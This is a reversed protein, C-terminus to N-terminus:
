AARAARPEVVTANLFTRKGSRMRKSAKPNAYADLLASNMDYVRPDLGSAEQAQEFGKTTGNAALAVAEIFSNPISLNTPEDLSQKCGEVDQAHFNRCKSPRVSYASCQGDELLPCAQNVELHQAHSLNKVEAVNLEAQKLVRAKQASTFQTEIFQQIALVEPARAEVKYYCCYSCGAACAMKQSSASHTAQIVSDLRTYFAIQAAQVPKRALDTKATRQEAEASHQFLDLHM